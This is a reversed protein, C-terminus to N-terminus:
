AGSYPFIMPNFFCFLVFNIGSSLSQFVVGEISRCSHRFWNSVRKGAEKRAWPEQMGWQQVDWALSSPTPFKLKKRGLFTITATLPTAFLAIVRKQQFLCSLMSTGHRFCSSEIIIYLTPEWPGHKQIFCATEATSSAPNLATSPASWHPKAKRPIWIIELDQHLGTLAHNEWRGSWLADRCTDTGLEVAVRLSFMSVVQSSSMSGISLLEPFCSNQIM